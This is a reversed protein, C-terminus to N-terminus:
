KGAPHNFVESPMVIPRGNNQPTMKIQKMFKDKYLQFHHIFEKYDAENNFINPLEKMMNVVMSNTIVCLFLHAMVKVDTGGIHFKVLEDENVSFKIYAIENKPSPKSFWNRFININM